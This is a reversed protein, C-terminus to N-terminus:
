GLIGFTAVVDQVSRRPVTFPTCTCILLENFSCLSCTAARTTGYKSGMAIAGHFVAVADTTCPVTTVTSTSFSFSIFTSDSKFGVTPMAHHKFQVVSPSQVPTSCCAGLM